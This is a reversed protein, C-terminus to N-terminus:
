PLWSSVTDHVHLTSAESWHDGPEFGTYSPQIQKTVKRQPLSKALHADLSGTSLWKKFFITKNKMHQRIYQENSCVSYYMKSAWNKFKQIKSNKKYVTVM